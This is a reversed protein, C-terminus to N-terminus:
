PSSRATAHGLVQKHQKNNGEPLFSSSTSPLELVTHSRKSDGSTFTYSKKNMEPSLSEPLPKADHAAGLAVERKRSELFTKSRSCSTSDDQEQAETTSSEDREHWRAVTCVRNFRVPDLTMLDLPTLRLSHPDTSGAGATSTTSMGYGYDGLIFRRPKGVSVRYITSTTPGPPNRNAQTEGQVRTS